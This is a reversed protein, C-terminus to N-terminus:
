LTYRADPKKQGVNNMLHSCRTSYLQLGNEKWQHTTQEQVFTDCNTMRGNYVNPLKWNPVRLAVM